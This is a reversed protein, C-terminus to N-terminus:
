SSRTESIHAEWMEQDSAFQEEEYSLNDMDHSYQNMEEQAQLDIEGCVSCEDLATEKWTGPIPGLEDLCDDCLYLTSDGLRYISAM